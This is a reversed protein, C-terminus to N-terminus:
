ADLGGKKALFEKEEQKMKGFFKQAVLTTGVIAIGAIGFVRLWLKSKYLSQSSNKVLRNLDTGFINTLCDGDVLKGFKAKYAKFLEVVRDGGSRKLEKLIKEDTEGKFIFDFAQRTIHDEKDIKFGGSTEYIIKRVAAKVEDSLTAGHDKLRKEVDATLILRIGRAEVMEKNHKIIGKTLRGYTEVEDRVIKSVGDGMDTLKDIKEVFKDSPTDIALIDEVVKKVFYELTGRRGKPGNNEAVQM